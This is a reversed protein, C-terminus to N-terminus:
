GTCYKEKMGFQEAPQYMRYKIRLGIGFEDVADTKKTTLRFEDRDYEIVIGNEYRFMPMLPVAETDEEAVDIFGHLSSLPGHLVKKAKAPAKASIGVCFIESGLSADGWWITFRCGKLKADQSVSLEKLGHFLAKQVPESYIDTKYKKELLQANFSWYYIKSAQPIFDTFKELALELDM